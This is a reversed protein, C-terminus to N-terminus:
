RIPIYIDMVSKERFHCREDYYEFDVRTEDFKYDTQGFWDKFIYRWTSKIMQAFREGGKRMDIPPTTFIAYLGDKIVYEGMDDPLARDKEIRVGCLYSMKGKELLSPSSICFEGHISPNIKDYMIKEYEFEEFTHWFATMKDSFDSDDSDIEFSYGSVRISNINILRPKQIFSSIDSVSILKEFNGTQSLYMKPTFGYYKKFTKTFGSATEFGYKFAVDIIKENNIIDILAMELKRKRIYEMVSMSTYNHFLRCFHFLSYGLNEALTSPTLPETINKEIFDLCKEFDKRYNM